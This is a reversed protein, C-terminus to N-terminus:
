RCRQFTQTRGKITGDRLLITGDRCSKGDQVVADGVVVIGHYSGAMWNQADGSKLALGVARDVAPILLFNGSQVIAEDPTASPLTPAEDSKPAIAQGQAIPVTAQKAPAFAPATARKEIVASLFPAPRDAPILTPQQGAPTADESETARPAHDIIAASVTEGGWIPGRASWLWGALAIVLLSISVMGAAILLKQALGPRADVGSRAHLQESARDFGIELSGIAFRWRSRSAKYHGVTETRRAYTRELPQLDGIHQM